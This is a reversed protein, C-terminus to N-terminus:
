NSPGIGGARMLRLGADNEPITGIWGNKRKEERRKMFSHIISRRQGGANM